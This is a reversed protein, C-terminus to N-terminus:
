KVTGPHAQMRIEIAMWLLNGSNGAAAFDLANILVRRIQHWWREKERGGGSGRERVRKQKTHSDPLSKHAQTLTHTRPHSDTYEVPIKDINRKANKKRFILNLQWAYFCLVAINVGQKSKARRKSRRGRKRKKKWERPTPPANAVSSSCRQSRNACNTTAEVIVSLRIFDSKARM